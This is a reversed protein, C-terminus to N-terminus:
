RLVAGTGSLKSEDVTISTGNQYYYTTSGNGNKVRVNPYIVESRPTTIAGLEGLRSGSPYSTTSGYPNQIGPNVRIIPENLLSRGPITNERNFPNNQSYAPLVILASFGLVGLWGAFNRVHAFM